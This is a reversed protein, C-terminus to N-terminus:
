ATIEVLNCHKTKKILYNIDVKIHSFEIWLHLELEKMWIM